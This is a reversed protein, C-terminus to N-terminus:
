CPRILIRDNSPDKVARDFILESTQPQWRNFTLRTPAAAQLRPQICRHGASSEATAGGWILRRDAAVFVVKPEKRLWVHDNMLLVLTTLMQSPPPAILQFAILGM